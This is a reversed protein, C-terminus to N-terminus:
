TMIPRYQADPEVLKHIKLKKHAEQEVPKSQQLPNGGPGVPEAFSKQVEGWFTVFQDRFDGSGGMRHWKNYKPLIGNLDAEAKKIQSEIREIEKERHKISTGAAPEAMTNIAEEIEGWGIWGYIKPAGSNAVSIHGHDMLSRFPDDDGLWKSLVRQICEVREATHKDYFKKAQHIMAKRSMPIDKINLRTRKLEEIKKQLTKTVIYLDIWNYDFLAKFTNKQLSIKMLFSTAPIDKDSGRNKAFSLM